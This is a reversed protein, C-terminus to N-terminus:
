RGESAGGRRMEFAQAGDGGRAATRSRERARSVTVAVDMTDSIHAEYAAADFRERMGSFAESIPNLVHERWLEPVEALFATFADVAARLGDRWTQTDRCVAKARGQMAKINVMQSVSIRADAFEELAAGLQSVTQECEELLAQQEDLLCLLEPDNRYPYKPDALAAKFDRVTQHVRGSARGDLREIGHERSVSQLVEFLEANWDRVDTFGSARLAGRMSVRTELGRKNEHTVPVYVMHLHPTAEDMHIVAQAIMFSPFRRRFEDVFGELIERSVARCDESTAPMSDANGIQIVMENMPREQKGHCLKDYYDPIQREAHGKEVQKANYAALSEGFTEAYFQRIPTDCLVVNENSRSADVNDLSARHALDFNHAHSAVEGKSISMTQKM